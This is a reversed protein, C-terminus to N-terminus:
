ERIGALDVPRRRLLLAAPIVSSLVAILACVVAIVGIALWPVGVVVVPAIKTM